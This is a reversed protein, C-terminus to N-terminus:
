LINAFLLCVSVINVCVSFVMFITELRLAADRNSLATFTTPRESAVYPCKGEKMTAGLRYQPTDAEREYHNSQPDKHYVRLVISQLIITIASLIVQTTVYVRFWSINETSSPMSESLLTAYVAFTLFISISMGIKEGAAVPLVFCFINVISLVIIPLVITLIASIPRRRINITFEMYYDYSQNNEDQTSQFKTETSIVSWEGNYSTNSTDVVSYNKIIELQHMSSTLSMFEFTCKQEDFPYRQVNIKCQITSQVTSLMYISGTYHIFAENEKVSEYTMCMRGALENLGCISPVWVKEAPVRLFETEFESINWRLYEDRWGYGKLIVSSFTQSKEDVKEISFLSLILWFPVHSTINMVPKRYRNYEKFLINQLATETDEGGYSFPLVLFSICICFNMESIFMNAAIV